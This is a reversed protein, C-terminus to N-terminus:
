ESIINRVERALELIKSQEADLSQLRLKEIRESNSIDTDKFLFGKEFHFHELAFKSDIESIINMERWANKFSDSILYLTILNSHATISDPKYKVAREYSDIAAEVNFGDGFRFCEKNHEYLYGLFLYSVYLFRKNKSLVIAKKLELISKNLYDINSNLLSLRYYFFSLCFNKWIWKEKINNLKDIINPVYNMDTMLLEINLVDLIKEVEESYMHNKYKGIVEQPNDLIFCTTLIYLIHDLTESERNLSLGISNISTGRNKFSMVRLNSELTLTNVTKPSYAVLPKNEFFNEDTVALETNKLQHLNLYLDLKENPNVTSELLKEYLELTKSQYFYYRFGHEKIMNRFIVSIVVELNKQSRNKHQAIKTLIMKKRAIDKKLAKSIQRLLSHKEYIRSALLKEGKITAMHQYFKEFESKLNHKRTKLLSLFAGQCKIPEFIKGIFGDDLTQIYAILEFSKNFDVDIERNIYARWFRNYYNKNDNSTNFNGILSKSMNDPIFAECKGVNIVKDGKLFLQESCCEFLTKSYIFWDLIQQKQIFEIQRKSLKKIPISALSKVDLLYEQIIGEILEGNIPLKINYCVPMNMGCLRHWRYEVDLPTSIQEAKFFWIRGDNGKLLFKANLGGLIPQFDNVEFILNSYIKDDLKKNEFYLGYLEENDESAVVNYCTSILISFVLTFVIYVKNFVRGGILCLRNIINM